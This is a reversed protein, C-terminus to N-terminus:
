GDGPLRRASMTGLQKVVAASRLELTEGDALEVVAPHRCDELGSSDPSFPDGVATWPRSRITLRTSVGRVQGSRMELIM